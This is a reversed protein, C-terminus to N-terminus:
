GKSNTDTFSCERNHKGDLLRGCTAQSECFFWENIKERFEDKSFATVSASSLYNLDIEPLEITPIIKTQEKYITKEPCLVNDCISIQSFLLMKQFINDLILHEESGYFNYNNREIKLKNSLALQYKARNFNDDTINKILNVQLQSSEYDELLHHIRGTVCLVKLLVLWNDIACTNSFTVTKNGIVLKGGWLPVNFTIDKMSEHPPNQRVPICNEEKEKQKQEVVTNTCIGKGKHCRSSCVQKNKKCKCTTTKCGKKCKCFVLKTMSNSLIAAERLSVVKDPNGVPVIGPYAMLNSATYSNKLTGYKTLLKYVPLSSSSKRVIVAPLRTMDTSGRDIKPIKVSVEQGMTFDEVKVRKRKSYKNKMRIANRQANKFVDERIKKRKPSTITFKPDRIKSKEVEQIEESRNLTEEEALHQKGSKNGIKTM